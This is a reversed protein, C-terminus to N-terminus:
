SSIRDPHAGRRATAARTRERHHAAARELFREREAPSSLRREDEVALRPLRAMLAQAFLGPGRAEAEGPRGVIRVGEFGCSPSDAKFIYGDLDAAALEEIRRASYQRMLATVDRATDRTVLAVGGLGGRVLQMAERPAGFGAEVEPCVPVWEVRPGLSAILDDHRKHGADWRVAEGLLCSSIAVRPRDSV